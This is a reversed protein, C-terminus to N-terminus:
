KEMEIYNFDAWILNIAKLVLKFSFFLSLILSSSFYNPLSRSEHKVTKPHSNNNFFMQFPKFISKTKSEKSVKSLRWVRHDHSTFWKVPKFELNFHCFKEILTEYFRQSKAKNQMLKLLFNLSNNYFRELSWFSWRKQMPLARPLTIM